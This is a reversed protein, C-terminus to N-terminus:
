QAFRSRARLRRIGRPPRSRLAAAGQNHARLRLGPTHHPTLIRQPSRCSKMDAEAGDGSAGEYPWAAANATRREGVVTDLAGARLVTVRTKQPAYDLDDCQPRKM